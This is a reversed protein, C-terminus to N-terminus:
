LSERSFKYVLGINLYLNKRKEKTDDKYKLNTNFYGTEKILGWRKSFNILLLASLNLGLGSGSKDVDDEVFLFGDLQWISQSEYSNISFQNSIESVSIGM